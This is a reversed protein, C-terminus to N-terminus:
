RDAVADEPGATDELFATRYPRPDGDRFLDVTVRGAAPVRLRRAWSEGPRLRADLAQQFGGAGRVRLRYATVANEECHLGVSVTRVDGPAQEAFAPVLELATFPTTPQEDVARTSYWAAGGLMAAALALPLLRLAARRFTIRGGGGATAAAPVAPGGAPATPGGYRIRAQGALAAIVAVGATLLLWADRELRAGTAYLGLGGLVLTALSLAPALVLAEVTSLPRPFLLRTVAAGPLVLALALGGALAVPRPGALVAGASLAAAGALVTGVTPRDRREAAPRRTM